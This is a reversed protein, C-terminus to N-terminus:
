SNIKLGTGDIKKEIREPQEKIPILETNIM